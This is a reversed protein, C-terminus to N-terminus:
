RGADFRFGGDRNFGADSFDFCRWPEDSTCGCIVADYPCLAAQGPCTTGEKPKSAPCEALSADLGFSGGFGGTGTSTGGSGASGGSGGATTTSSTSGGSGTSTGGSGSRGASGGTSPSSSDDGGCHVAAISALFLSAGLALLSKKM